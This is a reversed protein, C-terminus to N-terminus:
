SQPRSAQQKAEAKRARSIADDLVAGLRAPLRKLLERQQPALFNQAQADVANWDVTVLVAPMGRGYSWSSKAVATLLQDAQHPLLPVAERMSAVALEKVLDRPQALRQYEKYQAWGVPGLLERLTADFEQHVRKELTAVASRVEPGRADRVQWLDTLQVDRTFFAAEFKEITGPSLQLAAYLPAYARPLIPRLSDIWLGLLVPDSMAKERWDAPWTVPRWVEAVAAGSKASAKRTPQAAAPSPSQLDELAAKLSTRWDDCAALRGQTVKIMMTLNAQDHAQRLLARRLRAHWQDVGIATAFLALGAVAGAILLTRTKM